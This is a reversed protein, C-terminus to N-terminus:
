NEVRLGGESSDRNASCIAKEAAAKMAAITNSAHTLQDTSFPGEGKAIQELAALMDPASAILTANAKERPGDGGFMQAVPGQKSNVNWYGEDDQWVAWPGSDYQQHTM